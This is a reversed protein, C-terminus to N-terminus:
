DWWALWTVQMGREAKKMKSIGWAANCLELTKFREVSHRLREVLLELMEEDKVQRMSHSLPPVVRLINVLRM